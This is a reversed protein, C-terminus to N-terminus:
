RGASVWTRPLALESIRSALEEAAHWDGHLRLLNYLALLSGLHDPAVALAARFEAEALRHYDGGYSILGLEFQRRATFYAYGLRYRAQPNRPEREALQRLPALAAGFAGPGERGRGHSGGPLSTRCLKEVVGRTSGKRRESACCTAM